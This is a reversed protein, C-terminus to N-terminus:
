GGLPLAVVTGNQSAIYVRAADTSPSALVHGPALHYQWLLRGDSARLASFIGNVSGVYVAGGDPTNAWACSSDYIVSGTPTEWKKEGTAADFCFVRGTDTLSANYIKGDRFLPGSYGLSPGPVEWLLKGTQAESAHMVGDNSTVYARGDGTTPSGIAPAYYFSRGFKQKWDERGTTVDLARFMNDWGGVFFHAGDTTAQSQYMGQGQATWLKKGTQADLGYIKTDVSAICIVGRAFAAGAFVAGEAYAEWKIKGSTADLAYIVHDASGFFVTGQAVLPTSFIAGETRYKWRVSGTAANLCVMDGGMTSVYLGDGARVLRSQVADGLPAVWLPAPAGPRRISLPVNQTYVRGDPLTAEVTLSHEGVMLESAPLTASWDHLALVLPRLKGGDVRFALKSPPSFTGWWAWVRVNTGEVRATATWSPPARKALPASLVEQTPTPTGETRRLVRLRDATVEILHYSGQYLGKPMIAPAGNINWEIDSHGHGQLWLVVNYPATISLLDSENDVFNSGRGIPHHFGIIVPRAAGVTKLDARLWDLMARDFHGWHQLLVTSDLLVFHVNQYDWSQYLPQGTGTRYGEKGLPNWRVDHNGPATYNPISLNTLTKQFLAYEQPTASECTDGTNMVFAPQPQLASIERYLASDTAAHSTPGEGGDIHTDSIHVFSFDARAAPALSVISSGMLVSLLLRFRSIQDPLFRLKM